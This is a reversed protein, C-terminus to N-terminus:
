ARREGKAAKARRAEKAKAKNDRDAKTTAKDHNKKAASAERAADRAAQQAALPAARNGNPIAKVTWVYRCANM